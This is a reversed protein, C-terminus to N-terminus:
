RSVAEAALVGPLLRAGAPVVIVPVDSRRMVNEAISGLLVRDLHRRGHTGVVIADAHHRAAADILGSAAARGDVVETDPYVDVANAYHLAADLADRAAFRLEHVYPTPDYGYAGAIQDPDPAEAVSCFVLRVNRELALAVAFLAAGESPQSADIGVILRELERGQSSQSGRVVIVPVNANRLIGDAVSGTLTRAMGSLDRTGVAIATANWRRAADLVGPAVSNTSFELSVPVACSAVREGARVLLERRFADLGRVVPATERLERPSKTKLPFATPAWVDSVHAVVVDGAFQGALAIARDLAVDAPPSADYAVLIRAFPHAFSM